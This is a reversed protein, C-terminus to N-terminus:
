RFELLPELFLDAARDGVVADLGEVAAVGVVEVGVRPVGPPVAHGAQEAVVEALGDVGALDGQEEAGALLANDGDDFAELDVVVLVGDAGDRADAGVDAADVRGIELFYGGGM